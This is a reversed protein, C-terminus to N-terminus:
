APLRLQSEVWRKVEDDLASRLAAALGASDRTDSQRTVMFGHHRAAETTKPGITIVKLRRLAAAGEGALEVLGKVASGSAFVLAELQPDELASALAGRSDAPATATRYAVVDDVEAGMEALRQPLFTDAADARALLVRAGTLPGMRAMAAPIAAATAAGPVCAVEVGHRRLTDATSNGVAAWRTRAAMKPGDALLAEVGRRSTVVVWDYAGLQSRARELGSHVPSAAIAITPVHIHRFGLEEVAARLREDLEPRTDLLARARIPVRRNLEDAVRSATGAVASEVTTRLVHRTQGDPTVAGAVLTYGAASREAVAGVPARCGGGMAKLLAREAVVAGRVDPDDVPALMAAVEADERRVQVALAGQGPAPPMVDPELREVARAGFGLRDLGAAALVLADAHGSDLRQLRTDVNGHLPIVDLDPRLFRVFGARRPSDTGVRSGKPLSDLSTARGRTVLADRPDAREPYAVIITRPDEDLPLDKASHVALDIEGRALARELATVFIGEGIPADPARVDGDAVITVLEVAIGLARLRDAVIRSQKLALRSGRTGLRLPHV